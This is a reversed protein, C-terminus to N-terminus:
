KRRRARAVVCLRRNSADDPPPSSAFGRRIQTTEASRLRLSLEPLFPPAATLEDDAFLLRGAFSGRVAPASAFQSLGSM